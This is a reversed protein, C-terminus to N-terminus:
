QPQDGTYYLWQIRILDAINVFGDQNVDARRLFETEDLPSIDSIPYWMIYLKLISIDAWSVYGDDNLDGIGDVAPRKGVDVYSLVYWEEFVNNITIKALLKYRDFNTPMILHGSFTFEDGHYILANHNGIYKIEIDTRYPEAYLDVSFNAPIPPASFPTPNLNKISFEYDHLAGLDFPMLDDWTAASVEFDVPPSTFIAEALLITNPSLENVGDVLVRATIPYTGPMDASIQVSQNWSLEGPQVLNTTSSHHQGMRLARIQYTRPVSENNRIRYNLYYTEGPRLAGVPTGVTIYPLEPTFPSGAKSWHIEEISFSSVYVTSVPYTKEEKGVIVKATLYYVGITSPAIFTGNCSMTNGKPVNSNFVHGTPQDNLYLVVSFDNTSGANKIRLEFDSESEPYFPQYGFWEIKEVLYDVTKPVIASMMDVMTVTVLMGMIPEIMTALELQTEVEYM